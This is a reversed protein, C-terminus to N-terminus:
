LEISAHEVFVDPLYDIIDQATLSHRGTEEAAFDGALGHLYVGLIAAELVAMKQGVLAAIIGTLVDGAGGTAMGANGTLNIYVRQADSVVSEHGKLVVVGGYAEVLAVAAAQREAASAGVRERRGAAALLRDAEGPHPTLILRARNPIMAVQDVGARALLNLGDADIVVPGAFRGLVDVLCAPTISDGLGPGIALVDAKYEEIDKVIAAADRPLARSTALPALGAVTTQIEAPTIIQVLGVGSRYAANAVLAPAGVMMVPAACGGVVVLRGVDGKHAQLTREPLPALERTIVPPM